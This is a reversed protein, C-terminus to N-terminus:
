DEDSDRLDELLSAHVDPDLPLSEHKYNDSEVFLAWRYSSDEFAERNNPTFHFEFWHAFGIVRDGVRDTLRDALIEDGFVSRFGFRGELLALRVADLNPGPRKGPEAVWVAAQLQNRKPLLRNYWSLEAQVRGADTLRAVRVLEQVRFWLTQRNEFVATVAPGVRIRRCRHLYRFHEEFHNDRWQSFAEPATFEELTLPKM